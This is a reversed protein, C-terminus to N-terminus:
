QYGFRYKFLEIEEACLKGVERMTEQDYAEVYSTGDGVIKHPLIRHKLELLDCMTRFDSNLTEMKGIFDFPMHGSSDKLWYIQPRLAGCGNYRRVFGAFSLDGSVQLRAQHGKDRMVNKYWSFTRSWPNRVLTLKKYEKYQEGTVVFQNKKNAEPSLLGMNRARWVLSARGRSVCEMFNERSRFINHSILPREIRRISRHDQGGRGSFGDYHGLATEVSTGACKPIHIFIVKLDHSILFDAEGRGWFIL